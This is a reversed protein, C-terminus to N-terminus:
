NICLEEPYTFGEEIAKRRLVMYLEAKTSDLYPNVFFVGIGLLLVGLIYWGIFSLELVFINFKEGNTMQVSLEVARSHGIHPNDALIYPVMSYAYSAVIGPIILLLYWLFNLVGRYLMTKVVDWYFEGHFSYGLYGMNIDYQTAQNFYKRGGVEAAYGILIRFLIMAVVAAIGFVILGHFIMPQLSWFGENLANGSGALGDRNEVISRMNNQGSRGGSSGGYNSAGVLFLVFSVVLAKWYSQRLVGKARDKLEARIWM